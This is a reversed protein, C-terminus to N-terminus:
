SDADDNVEEWEQAFNSMEDLTMPEDIQSLMSDRIAGREAKWKACHQAREKARAEDLEFEKMLADCDEGSPCCDFPCDTM